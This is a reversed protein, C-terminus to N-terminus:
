FSTVGHSVISDEGGFTYGKKKKLKVFHTEVIMGSFVKSNKKLLNQNKKLFYNIFFIRQM